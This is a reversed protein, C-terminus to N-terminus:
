SVEEMQAKAWEAVATRRYFIRSWRTRVFPPGGKANNNSALNALAGKGLKIGFTELYASCEGRTLYEKQDFPSAMESDDRM